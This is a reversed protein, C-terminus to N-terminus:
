QDPEAPDMVEWHGTRPSGVRVIAGSAKLRRMHYKIGDLTLGVREALQKQTMRPEAALLALIREPVTKPTTIPTTQGTKPTTILTTSASKQTTQVTKRTTRAKRWIRTVFGAGAEFEPEPLGAEVCRQIMDVTGTGMREIYQKELETARDFERETPSIGDADEFGYDAGFLGVYIDCREVEDLYVEDPRRDSAPADEFLFIEIFRRMLPDGRVYDRLHVREQAFERQVSSVFIRIPTM